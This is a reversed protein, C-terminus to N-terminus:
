AYTYLTFHDSHNLQDCRHYSSIFLPNISHTLLTWICHLRHLGTRKNSNQYTLISTLCPLPQRYSIDLTKTHTHQTCSLKDKNNVNNLSRINQCINWNLKTWNHFRAPIQKQFWGTSLCSPLTEQQFFCRSGKIPNSSM